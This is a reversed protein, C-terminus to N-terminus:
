KHSFESRMDNKFWLDNKVVCSMQVIKACFVNCVKSLTIEDFYLNESKESSFKFSM